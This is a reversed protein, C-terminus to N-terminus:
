LVQAGKCGLFLRLNNIGMSDVTAELGWVVSSVDGSHSSLHSVGGCWSCSKFFM